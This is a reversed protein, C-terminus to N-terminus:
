NKVASKLLDELIELRQESPKIVYKEKKGNKDEVVVLGTGMMRSEAHAMSDKALASILASLEEYDAKMIRAEAPDGGDYEGSSSEARTVPHYKISDATIVYTNNNGDAYQISAIDQSNCSAYLVVSLLLALNKM